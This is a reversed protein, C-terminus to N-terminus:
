PTLPTKRNYWSLSCNRLEIWVDLHKVFLEMVAKRIGGIRRIQGGAIRAMKKYSFLFSLGGNQFSLLSEFLIVRLVALQWLFHIHFLKEHPNSLSPLRPAETKIFKILPASSSESRVEYQRTLLQFLSNETQNKM